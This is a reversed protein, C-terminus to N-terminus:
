SSLNVGIQTKKENDGILSCVKDLATKPIGDKKLQSFRHPDFCALDLDKQESFRMKMSQNIEDM